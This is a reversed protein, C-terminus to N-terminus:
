SSTSMPLTECVTSRPAAVLAGGSTIANGGFWRDFVVLGLNAAVLVLFGALGGDGILLDNGGELGM